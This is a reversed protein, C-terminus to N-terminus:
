NIQYELLQYHSKELSDIEWKNKLSQYCEFPTMSDNAMVTGICEDNILVDKSFKCNENQQITITAKM